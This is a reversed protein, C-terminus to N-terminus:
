VWFSRMAEANRTLAFANYGDNDVTGMRMPVGNMIAIMFGVAAFILMLTSLIPISQTAFFLGLFLAGAIVNIMSGGLNYLVIPIKGDKMDPPSM